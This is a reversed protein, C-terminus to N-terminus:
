FRPGPPSNEGEAGAVLALVEPGYTLVAIFVLLVVLLINDVLGMVWANIAATFEVTSLGEGRRAVSILGWPVTLYFVGLVAGIGIIRKILLLWAVLGGGSGRGRQM